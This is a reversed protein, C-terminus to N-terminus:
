WACTRLSVAEELGLAFASRSFIVVRPYCRKTQTNDYRWSVIIHLESHHTLEGYHLRRQQLISGSPREIGSPISAPAAAPSVCTTAVAGISFTLSFKCSLLAPM